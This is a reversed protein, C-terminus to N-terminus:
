DGGNDNVPATDLRRVPTDGGPLPALNMTKRWENPTMAGRDVMAVLGLKTGMSAYQLNASEFIVRNGFGREKRTFLKRTFEGAMQVAEPELVAEYYAVWEDESFKSQVISENTNFFSYIRKTTEKMQAANPVYSKPEVQKIDFKADSAAAGGTESDISLYEKVFENVQKRIDEPRLTQNFKLLWTIVNSNQVAKIIGQDTTNVIEMLSTLVEAPPDGFIDNNNFDQRLHIIDRYYFTRSKGNRLLFKLLLNGSKDYEAQVSVCPIPYIQMPYGYDDRIILAFANNNLSLQVSLKEQLMQGTMYPNPEELLFRMYPEPNVQTGEPGERIHKAVLKGIAKARPRVCSRVIDSQYLSGRWSYFGNGRDTVLELRYGENPINAPTKNRFLRQFLGV